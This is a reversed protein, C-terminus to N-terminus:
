CMEGLLDWWPLCRCSLLRRRKAELCRQLGRYITLKRRAQTAMDRALNALAEQVSDDSDGPVALRSVRLRQSQYLIESQITQLERDIEVVRPDVDVGIKEPLERGM